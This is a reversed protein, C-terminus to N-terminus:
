DTEKLENWNKNLCDRQKNWVWTPITPASARMLQYEALTRQAEFADAGSKSLRESEAEIEEAKQSYSRFALWSHLVGISLLTSLTVSVCQAAAM